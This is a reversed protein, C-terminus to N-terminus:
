HGRKEKQICMVDKKRKVTLNIEEGGIELV